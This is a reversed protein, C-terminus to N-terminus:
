RERMVGQLSSHNTNNRQMHWTFASVSVPSFQAKEEGRAKRIM